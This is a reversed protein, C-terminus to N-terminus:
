QRLARLIRQLDAWLDDINELGISIRLYTTTESKSMVHRDHAIRIPAIISRTGGWSAGIAFTKLGDLARDVTEASAGDLQLSFVGSSGKFDRQWLAHGSFSSLCPHLVPYSCNEALRHAFEESTDGVHRLRLGMTQVGRLALSCEDPSVGVGLSGLTNRIRGYLEMDRLIIAGLLIDSHGGVY